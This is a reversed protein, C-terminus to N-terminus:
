SRTITSVGFYTTFENREEPSATSPQTARPTGIAQIRARVRRAPRSTRSPSFVSMRAMGPVAMPMAYMRANWKSTGPTPKLSVLRQITIGSTSQMRRSGYVTRPAYADSRSTCREISSAAALTPAGPSRLKRSTVRGSIQRPTSTPASNENMVESCSAEATRKRDRPPHSVIGTPM